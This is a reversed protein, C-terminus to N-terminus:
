RGLDVARERTRGEVLTRARRWDADYGCHGARYLRIRFEGRTFRGALENRIWARRCEGSAADKFDVQNTGRISEHARSRVGVRARAGIAAIEFNCNIFATYFLGAQFAYASYICLRGPRDLLM